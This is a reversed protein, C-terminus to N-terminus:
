MNNPWRVFWRTLVSGLYFEVSVVRVYSELPEPRLSLAPPTSNLDDGSLLSLWNWGVYTLASSPVHNPVNFPDLNPRAGAPFNFDDDLSYQFLGLADEWFSAPAKANNWGLTPQYL